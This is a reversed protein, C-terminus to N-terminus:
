ARLVKKVKGLGELLADVEEKPNYVYFSARTVVGAKLEQMLPQACAHGSRVAIGESDLVQAVDHPHVGEMTFAVVGGKLSADRPGYVKVNELEDFKSLAHRTLEVEHARVNDMGIGQLYDIAAGLGIAGETNPTGAEFKWPVDNYTAEHLSVEHIMDGGGLFPPLKELLEKRGWLVGIGTPGLMKHGSFALFDVGLRQVDVPMHPVSQAGDVIMVAGHEHALKAAKGVDNITGLVNSAHTLSVVKTKKCLLEEFGEWDLTGDKLVDVYNLKLGKERAQFQWPVINSHHEMKSLIVRDGKKLGACLSHAVLNLAETANRTFVVEGADKAGIFKATKERAGEYAQTAAESLYYIGRQVNANRKEYYERIADLVQRPKQTTAANDLYVLPKGNVRLGLIPFDGRIRQVDLNM